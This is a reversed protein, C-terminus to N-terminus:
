NKLRMLRRIAWAPTSMIVRYGALKILERLVFRRDDRRTWWGSKQVFGFRPPVPCYRFRVPVGRFVEAFALATRRLHVDTSVVMVSRAKRAEWFRRFAVVEGYTSWGPLTSKEIRLGSNDIDIFFHREDPPTRDRLGILEDFAELVLTSMRSVEFRGVSLTLRPAMGTRYRELGYRKREMRGAMVFILDVPQPSDNLTLSEYTRL